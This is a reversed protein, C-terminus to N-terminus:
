RQTTIIPNWVILWLAFWNTQNLMIVVVVIVVVVDQHVLPTPFVRNWCDPWSVSLSLLFPSGWCLHQPFLNPSVIFLIFYIFYFFHSLIYFYSIFIYILFFTFMYFMFFLFLVILSFIFLLLILWLVSYIFSLKLCSFLLISFKMKILHLLKLQNHRRRGFDM